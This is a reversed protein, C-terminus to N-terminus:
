KWSTTRVGTCLWAPCPSLLAQGVDCSSQGMDVSVWVWVSVCGSQGVGMSVLLWESGCGCVRVCVSGCRSQSVGVRVRVWVSGCGVNQKTMELQNDPQVPLHRFAQGVDCRSQGVGVRVWVWVSGCGVKQKTMELQNDPGGYLALNSLAIACHKLTVRDNCRCWYIIVGLGGLKIVRSCTEESTKFLSELIGTTCSALEVDGQFGSM